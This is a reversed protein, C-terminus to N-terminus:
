AQQMQVFDTTLDLTVNTGDTEINNVDITTWLWDDGETSDDGGVQAYLAVWGIMQDTVVTLWTCDDFVWGVRDNGDDIAIDGGTYAITIRDSGAMNLEDGSIDSVWDDDKDPTHTSLLLMARVVTTGWNLGGASLM